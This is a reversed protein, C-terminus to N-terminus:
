DANEIRTLIATFDKIKQKWEPTLNNDEAYENAIFLLDKLAEVMNPFENVCKVIHSANATAESNNVKKYDRVDRMTEPAYCSVVLVKEGEIDVNLQYGNEAIEWKRNTFGNQKGTTTDQTKM